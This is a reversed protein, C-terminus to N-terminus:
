ADSSKNVLYGRTGKIVFIILCMIAMTILIIQGVKKIGKDFSTPPRKAGVAKAVKGLFTASGTQVAIGYASGSAVTTGMFCINNCTLASLVRDPVLATKEVPESEGTLASQTIFLDKAYLLRMDAPVMDGAALHIIDGPVINQIPIEKKVGNREVAATTNIMENLKESAKGSKFNQIFNLTGSLVIM